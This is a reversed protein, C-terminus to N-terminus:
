VTLPHHWINFRKSVHELSQMYRIEKQIRDDAEKDEVAEAKVAIMLGTTLEMYQFVNGMGGEGVSGISRYDAKAGLLQERLLEETVPIPDLDQFWRERRSMEKGDSPPWFTFMNHGIKIRCLNRAAVRRGLAKKSRGSLRSEEDLYETGQASTDEIVWLDPGSNLQAYVRCHVPSAETAKLIVNCCQTDSGFTLLLLQQHISATPQFTVKLAPREVRTGEADIAHLMTIAYDKANCPLGTDETLHFAVLEDPLDNLQGTDNKIKPKRM